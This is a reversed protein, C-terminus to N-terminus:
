ENNFLERQYPEIVRWAGWSGLLAWGSFVLLVAVFRPLILALLLPVLALATAFISWLPHLVVLRLSVKILQRTSLDFTVLLPWIYLNILLLAAILFFAVNRSLLAPLSPVEMNNLISLNLMILAAIGADLLGIVTSQQWHQRIGGFFDRFPESLEGRVWPTITAFLGATAAPLTVLLSAFVAWLMNLLIFSMAKDLLEARRARRQEAM